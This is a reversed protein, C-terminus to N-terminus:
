VHQEMREWFARMSYAPDETVEKGLFAPPIFAAAEEVSAFEVEAYWFAPQNPLFVQNCELRGGQPLAYVRQQKRLMPKKLLLSLESFVTESISIETEQRVLTGKGKFCLIFSRAGSDLVTKRIRVVPDVALYGQEMESASLLPFEDPFSSILFKREIEM